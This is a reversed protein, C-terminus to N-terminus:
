ARSRTRGPRGAPQITSAILMVVALVTGDRRAAAGGCGMAVATRTLWLSPGMSRENVVALSRAALVPVHPDVASVLARVAPVVAAAHCRTALAM